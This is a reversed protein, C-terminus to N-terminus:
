GVKVARLFQRELETASLKGVEGDDLLTEVSRGDDSIFLRTVGPVLEGTQSTAVKPGTTRLPAPEDIDPTQRRDSGRRDYVQWRRGSRDVFFLGGADPREAAPLARRDGGRAWWRTAAASQIVLALNAVDTPVEFWPIGREGIENMLERRSTKGPFIALAIRRQAARAFFMDSSVADLTDDILVVLSPRVRALADEPREGAAAFAPVFNALELLMGLLALTMPDDSLLLVTSRPSM